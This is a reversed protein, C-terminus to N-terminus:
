RVTSKTYSYVSWLPLNEMWQQDKYPLMSFRIGKLNQAKFDETIFQKLSKSKVNEEAKVEIPFVKTEGQLLFDIEVTSNEKAYYHVAGGGAAVIQTLVFNETFAGKYKSFISDDVLIQAAPIEAMACLLGVDHMFIKFADPEVYFSLPIEPLKCREVRYILAADRLWQLAKDFYSARSGKKIAGFIFKKNEKALQAPISNWVLRIRQVSDEAHKAFDRDYAVLIEKQISRVMQLDSNEIYAAVAEPMGGVYYYLRLLDKLEGHLTRQVEWDCSEVAALLNKRGLAELFENFHMPYLRLTNVKGVPYSEGRMYSIGLLSGAVAVHLNNRLECFYKLSALGGAVEQIEDFIVLTEGPVVPCECIASVSRIIRDMNYDSFLSGIQPNNHCNIYAVYKFENKGFEKLLYTKGVQRAGELVLPKRHLSNKWELLKIYLTRKM